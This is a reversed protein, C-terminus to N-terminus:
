APNDEKIFLFNAIWQYAVFGFIYVTSVLNFLEGSSFIQYLGFLGVLGMAITYIMLGRGKQPAFMTGLLPMMTLGYVGLALFREDLIGYLLFGMLGLLLSFGVLNSSRIEDKDLLFKGYPNLRLFLNSLPTIIWSSFAVLALLILIPYLFPRLAESREALGRLFRFVLYFGIIFGWQYRSSLNSMWFAYRLFLRYPLNSARLATAMGSRAFELNPDLRLAERFHELAKKHNGSELLTWGYTAHTM